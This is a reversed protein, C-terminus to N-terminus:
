LFKIIHTGNCHNNKFFFFRVLHSDCCVGFCLCDNLMNGSVSSICRLLFSSKTLCGLLYSFLFVNKYIVPICLYLQLISNQESQASRYNCLVYNAAMTRILQCHLFFHILLIFLLLDFVFIHM